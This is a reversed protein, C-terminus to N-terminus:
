GGCHGESDRPALKNLWNHGNVHLRIQMRTGFTNVIPGATQCIELMKSNTVMYVGKLHGKSSSPNIQKASSDTYTHWTKDRDTWHNPLKGLNIFSM